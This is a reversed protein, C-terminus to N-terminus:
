SSSVSLRLPRTSQMIHWETKFLICVEHTWVNLIERHLAAVSSKKKQKCLNHKEITQEQHDAMDDQCEYNVLAEIIKEKTIEQKKLLEYPKLKRCIFSIREEQTLFEQPLGQTDPRNTNCVRSFISELAQASLFRLLFQKAGHKMAPSWDHAEQLDCRCM